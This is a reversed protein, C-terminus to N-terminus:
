AAVATGEQAAEALILAVAECTRRLVQQCAALTDKGASQAYSAVYQWCGGVDADKEYGAITLLIAGGLEAVVEQDWHQGGKLGQVNRDDAAHVLEHAWTALNRVGLAISRGHRYKGLCGAGEGSYTAVSLDWRRAVEVLPLTDIWANERGSNDPLPAGETQEAGFVAASKFGYTIVRKEKEGTDTEAEVQKTCPVLIHFSKEGKKVNRGVAEWQRYGRADTYGALAALLQNSWSWKRCPVNDDDRHVFMPALVEPLNGSAFAGLIRGAAEEAKGYFKM